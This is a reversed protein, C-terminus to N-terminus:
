LKKIKLIKNIMGFLKSFGDKYSLSYEISVKKDTNQGVNKQAWAWDGEGHIRFNHYNPHQMVLLQFIEKIQPITFEENSILYFFM